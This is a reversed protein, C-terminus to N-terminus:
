IQGLFTIFVNRKEYKQPIQITYAIFKTYKNLKQTRIFNEETDFITTRVMIM